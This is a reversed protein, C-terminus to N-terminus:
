AFPTFDGIEIEEDTLTECSRDLKRYEEDYEDRFRLWDSEGRWRDITVYASAGDADDEGRLLETGLYSDAKAFLRSWDGDPRYIQEFRTRDAQRVRYRWVRVFM